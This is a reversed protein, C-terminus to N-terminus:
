SNVSTVYPEQLSQMFNWTILMIDAFTIRVKFHPERMLLEIYNTKVM